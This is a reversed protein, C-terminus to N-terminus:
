IAHWIPTPYERLSLLSSIYWCKKLHIQKFQGILPKNILGAPISKSTSFSMQQCIPRFPFIFYIGLYSMRKTTIFDFCFVQFTLRDCCFLIICKNVCHVSFSIKPHLHMRNLETYKYSNRLVYYNLYYRHRNVHCQAGRTNYFTKSHWEEIHKSTTEDWIRRQM